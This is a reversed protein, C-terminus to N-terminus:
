SITRKSGQLKRVSISGVVKIVINGEPAKMVYMNKGMVLLVTAVGMLVAPV